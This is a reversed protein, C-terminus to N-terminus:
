VPCLQQSAHTFDMDPHDPFFENLGMHGEPKPLAIIFDRPYLTKGLSDHDDEPDILVNAFPTATYGVYSSRPFLGLIQRLRTNIVTADTIEEDEEEEDDEFGLM